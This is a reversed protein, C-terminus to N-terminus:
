IIVPILTGGRKVKKYSKTKRLKISKNMKRTSKRTSTNKRVIKRKNMKSKRKRLPMSRKKYSKNIGM